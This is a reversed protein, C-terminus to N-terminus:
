QLGDSPDQHLEAIAMAMALRTKAVHENPLARELASLASENGLEALGDAALRRVDGDPDALRDLFAPLAAISRRAALEELADARTWANTAHVALDLLQSVPLQHFTRAAEDQGDQKDDEGDQEGNQKGNEEYPMEAPQATLHPITEPLAVPEAPQQSHSPISALRYGVVAMGVITSGLLLRLKM